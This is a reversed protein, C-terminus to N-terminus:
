HLTASESTSSEATEFLKEFIKMSIDCEDAIHIEGSCFLVIKSETLFSIKKLVADTTEEEM